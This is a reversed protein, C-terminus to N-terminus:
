TTYCVADTLREVFERPVKLTDVKRLSGRFTAEQVWLEKRVLALADSFTPYPKRYWATRRVTRTSSKAMHQHAFLTVISFLALLAPATRRIARESWHRQTEFGLRQRVEQFTTEMQWRRVFRSIIREPDAALDTCLLVQTRFERQPDRILVWRLPVAPLGTSHWVATDSVLEITRKEKGYWHTM